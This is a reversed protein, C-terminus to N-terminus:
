PLLHGFMIGCVLATALFGAFDASLGAFVAHRTKTVGVAGFYVALVYFTTDTSGQLTTAVYGIYSDPGHTQVLETMLGYAGSGSLPRVLAMPLVEGPIGIPNTLLGLKSTLLQMAGSGRFMGVASLIAVLYPIILVGTTFGEKAGAIFSEYVKVGKAAGFLLLCLILTPIVWDGSVVAFERMWVAEESGSPLLAAGLPPITLILLFALLVLRLIWVGSSTKTAQEMAILEQEESVEHQGETNAQTEPEPLAFIPLRQLSKAAIIGVITAIATAFLTSGIIGWPDLSGEAARVSVVGSPLLALGSTNIALFLVMANTATGPTRNLRNLEIMAKIGLPTAANVLGLMNGAINLIMASMAPHDPPVDPFLRVMLPRIARALLKLLGGDEAVKMLGLFLAMYGVLKLALTVAKEAGQLAGLSVADMSGTYAGVAFAVVVILLFAHNM